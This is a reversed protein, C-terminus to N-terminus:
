RDNGSAKQPATPVGKGATKGNTVPNSGAGADNGTAQRVPAVGDGAGSAPTGISTGHAEIESLKEREQPTMEPIGDKPVEMTPLKVMEPPPAPLAQLLTQLKALQAPTLGGQQPQGVTSVAALKAEPPVVATEHQATALKALEAPTPGTYPGAGVTIADQEKTVPAEKAHAWSGAATIFIISGFALASPLTRRLLNVRMQSVERPDPQLVPTVGM